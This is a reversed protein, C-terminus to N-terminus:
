GEVIYWSWLEKNKSCIDQVAEASFAHVAPENGFSINFNGDVKANPFVFKTHYVVSNDCVDRCLVDLVIKANKSFSNGQNSFKKGVAEEYDYFVIISDGEVFEGAAFTLTKTSASIAFKGAAAASDVVLKNGQTGDRNLKYVFAVEAGATGGVPIESLVATTVTKGITIIDYTPVVLKSEASGVVASVGTQAVIAGGIIYGNNCSFKSTKNRDLTSLRAGGKGTGYVVEAGNEISGDKIEDMMLLLENTSKDFATVMDIQDIVLKDFDISTLAM